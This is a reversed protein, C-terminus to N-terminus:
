RKGKEGKERKETNLKEKASLLSSIFFSPFFITQKTNIYFIDTQRKNTTATLSISLYTSLFISLL